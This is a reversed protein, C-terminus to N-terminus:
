KGELEAVRAALRQIEADKARITALARPLWPNMAPGAMEILAAVHDVEAPTLPNVDM